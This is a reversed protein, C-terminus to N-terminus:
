SSWPLRHMHKTTQKAAEMGQAVELAKKLDLADNAGKRKWKFRRNRRDELLISMVDNVAGEEAACGQDREAMKSDDTRRIYQWGSRTTM